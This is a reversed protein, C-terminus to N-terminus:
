LCNRLKKEIMEFVIKLILYIQTIVKNMLLMKLYFSFRSISKPDFKGKLRYKNTHNPEKEFFGLHIHPYNTNSHLAWYGIINNPDLKNAKLLGRM